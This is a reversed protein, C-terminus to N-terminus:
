NKEVNEVMKDATEFRKKAEELMWITYANKKECAFAVEHKDALESALRWESQNKIPEGKVNLFGNEKWRKLNGNQFSSSLYVSDTHITLNCKANLIKLSEIFALLASKNYTIESEQVFIERTQIGYKKTHYEVVAAYWGKRTGPGKLSTELYINVEFM